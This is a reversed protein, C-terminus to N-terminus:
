GLVRYLVRFGRERHLAQALVVGLCVPIAISQVIRTPLWGPPLVRETLHHDMALKLAIIGM